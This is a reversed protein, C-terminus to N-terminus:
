NLFNLSILMQIKEIRHPPGMERIKELVTNLEDSLIKQHSYNLQFKESTPDIKTEIKPM